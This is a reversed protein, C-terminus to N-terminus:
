ASFHKKTSTYPNDRYYIDQAKGWGSSLRGKLIQDWGIARQEGWAMILTRDFTSDYHLALTPEEGGVRLYNLISQLATYIVTATRLKKHVLTFADRRRHQAQVLIPAQCTVFHLKEEMQGCGTPCMSDETEDDFLYKQNGDHQWGHVMKVVNTVRQPTMKKMCLGVSEWDITHFIADNWWPNKEMLYTIIGAKSIEETVVGAIDGYIFRQSAYKVM